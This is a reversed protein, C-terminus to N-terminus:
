RPRPRSRCHTETLVACVPSVSSKRRAPRASPAAIAADPLRTSSMADPAMDCVNQDSRSSRACSALSGAWMLVAAARPASESRIPQSWAPSWARTIWLMGSNRFYRGSALNPGYRIIIAASPSPATM